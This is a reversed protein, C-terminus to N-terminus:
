HRLALTALSIICLKHRVGGKEGRRWAQWVRGWEERGCRAVQM